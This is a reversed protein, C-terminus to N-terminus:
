HAKLRKFLFPYKVYLLTILAVLILAWEHPEPVAGTSRLTANRLSKEADKIDFREYDKASELVVLSSVPSVIYAEQAEKVLAERVEPIDLGTRGMKKMLHNYAFLRMLHDPATTAASDSLGPGKILAIGASHIIVKNDNEDNAAFVGEGSIKKLDNISGQEYQFWRLEKLSKFVPSLEEGLNFLRISSAPAAKTREIYECGTLDELNPATGKHKTIVLATEPDKILYLPLLSFRRELLSAFLGDVNQGNLKQMEGNYVYVKKDKFLAYVQKLEDESWAGNVDLYVRDFTAASRAPKYEEVKYSYGNFSFADPSIPVTDCSFSWEGKYSGDKIYTGKESYKFDSPLSVDSSGYCNFKVEEKTSSVAPGDFYINRYQLKDAESQLPSTIGVKFMRTEGTLVPFVRISVRNGEQWQIVSPDRSERGVITRYAEMAKEKSTLVAKEEKGNIWLSLSTVVGGEPLHFTYIAEQERQWRDSGENAVTLVKETYAMRYQPWVKVNTNVYKTLLNDGSWLREEAENRSDYISKLINIKEAESLQVRDTFALCIMVIPDHKNENFNNPSPMKFFSSTFGPTGFVLDTKLIRESLWGKPIKQSVRVWAPLAPDGEIAETRYEKNIMKTIGNWKIILVGLTVIVALVGAIFSQILVPYRLLIKRFLFISYIVFALPIFTHLSIGLAPSGIVGILYYPVLYIALYLFVLMSIGLIFSCIHRVVPPMYSLFSLTLFNVSIFVLVVAFWGTSEMFVPLERNLSYASILGLLLFIAFTNARRSKKKFRGNFLLVFFYVAALVYNIAFIGFSDDLVDSSHMTLGFITVSALLFFLGASYISDRLRLQIATLM